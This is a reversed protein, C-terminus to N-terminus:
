DTGPLPLAAAQCVRRTQNWTLRRVFYQGEDVFFLRFSEMGEAFLFFDHGVYHPPLVGFFWHYTAEDIEVVCGTEALPGRMSESTILVSDLTVPQPRTLETILESLTPENKTTM